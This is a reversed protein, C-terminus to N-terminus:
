FKRFSKRSLGVIGFQYRVGATLFVYMDPIGTRFSNVSNDYSDMGEGFSINTQYNFNLILRNSGIRDPYYINIGLNVPLSAEKSSNEGAFTDGTEVSTRVPNKHNNEIVGIGTGVYLGRIANLFGSRQYDVFVGLQVKLNAIIVKYDNNFERHYRDTEVDGGRIRGQQYELGINIYPTFYYDAAVYAAVSTGKNYVDGFSQTAGMGAGVGLKYFNSQASAIGPRFFLLFNVLLFYLVATLSPIFKM